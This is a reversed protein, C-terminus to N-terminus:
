PHTACKPCEVPGPKRVLINFGCEPCEVVIAGSTTYTKM